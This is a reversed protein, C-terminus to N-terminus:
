NVFLIDDADVDSSLRGLNADHICASLNERLCDDTGVVVLVRVRVKVLHCGRYALDNRVGIDLPLYASDSDTGRVPVVVGSHHLHSRVNDPRLGLGNRHSLHKRLTEVANRHSKGVVRVRRGHALHGVARRASHLVEDHDSETGSHAAADDYVALNDIPVVPKGALEAM